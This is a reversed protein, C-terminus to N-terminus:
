VILYCTESPMSSKTSKYFLLENNGPHTTYRPPGYKAPLVAFLYTFLILFSNIFLKHIMISKTLITIFNSKKMAYSEVVLLTPNRLPEV